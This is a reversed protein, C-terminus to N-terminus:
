WEFPIGEGFLSLGEEAAGEEELLSGSGESVSKTSKASNKANVNELAKSLDGGTNKAEQFTSEM